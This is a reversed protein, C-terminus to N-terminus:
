GNGAQRKGGWKAILSLWLHFLQRNVAAPATPKANRIAGM